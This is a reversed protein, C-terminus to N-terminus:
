KKEGHAREKEIRQQYFYGHGQDPKKKISSLFILVSELSRWAAHETTIEREGHGVLIEIVHSSKRLVSLKNM